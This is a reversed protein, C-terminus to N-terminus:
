FLGNDIKILNDLPVPTEAGVDLVVAGEELAVSSVIGPLVEGTAPDAYEIARGVLQAAEALARPGDRGLLDLLNDNLKLSQELTGIQALQAVFDAGQVPELPNQNRLQTVVLNLFVDTGIPSGAYTASTASPDAAPTASTQANIAAIDM